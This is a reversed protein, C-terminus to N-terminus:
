KWYEGAEKYVKLASVDSGNGTSFEIHHSTSNPLSTSSTYDYDGEESSYDSTIYSKQISRGKSARANTKVKNTEINRSIM